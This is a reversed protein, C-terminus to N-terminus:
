MGETRRGLQAKGTNIVPLNKINTKDGNM